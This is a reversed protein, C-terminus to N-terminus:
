SHRIERTGNILGKIVYNVWVLSVFFNVVIGSAIGFWVGHIGLDFINVYLYAAWWEHMAPTDFALPEAVHHVRHQAVLVVWFKRRVRPRIRHQDDIREM